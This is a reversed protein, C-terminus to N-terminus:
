KVPRGALYHLPWEPFQQCLSPWLNSQMHIIKHITANVTQVNNMLLAHLRTYCMYTDNHLQAQVLACAVACVICSCSCICMFVYIIYAHEHILSVQITISYLSLNYVYFYVLALNISSHPIKTDGHNCQTSTSM